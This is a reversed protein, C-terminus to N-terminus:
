LPRMLSVSTSAATSAVAIVASVEFRQALQALRMHVRENKRRAVAARMTPGASTASTPWTLFEGPAHALGVAECEM